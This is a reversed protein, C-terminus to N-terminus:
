ERNKLIEEGDVIQWSSFDFIYLDTYMNKLLRIYFFPSGEGGDNM